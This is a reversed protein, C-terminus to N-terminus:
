ARRENRKHRTWNCETRLIIRFSAWTSKAVRADCSIWTALSSAEKFRGSDHLEVLFTTADKKGKPFDSWILISVNELIPFLIFESLHVLQNSYRIFLQNFTKNLCQWMRQAWRCLDSFPSLRIPKETPRRHSEQNSRRQAMRTRPGQHVPHTKPHLAPRWILNKNHSDHRHRGPYGQLLGQRQAVTKRKRITSPQPIHPAKGYKNITDM